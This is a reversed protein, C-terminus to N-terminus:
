IRAAIMEMVIGDPKNCPEVTFFSQATLKQSMLKQKKRKRKFVDSLRSFRVITPAVNPRARSEFPVAYRKAKGKKIQNTPQDTFIYRWRAHFINNYMAETTTTMLPM